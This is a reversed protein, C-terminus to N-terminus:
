KLVVEKRDYIINASIKKNMKKLKIISWILEENTPTKRVDPAIWLEDDLSYLYFKDNNDDSYITYRFKEKYEKISVTDLVTKDIGQFMEDDMMEKKYTPNSIEYQKGLKDIKFIDKQITYKTDKTQDKFSDITSSSLPILYIVDEYEYEGFITNVDKNCGVLTCLLLVVAIILLMIRKM